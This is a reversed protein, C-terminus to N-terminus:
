RLLTVSDLPTSPQDRPETSSIFLDPAPCIRLHMPMDFVIVRVVRGMCGDPQKSSAQFELAPYWGTHRAQIHGTRVSSSGVPDVPVM